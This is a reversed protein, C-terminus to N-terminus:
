LTLRDTVKLAGEPRVVVWIGEAATLRLQVSLEEASSPNIISRLGVPPNNACTPVVEVLTVVKLSAAGPLVGM